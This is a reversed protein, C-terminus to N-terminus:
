HSGHFGMSSEKRTIYCAGVKQRSLILLRLRAQNSGEHVSKYRVFNLESRALSCAYSRLLRPTGSRVFNHVLDVSADMANLYNM